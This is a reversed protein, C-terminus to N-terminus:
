ASRHEWMEYRGLPKYGLHQYMGEAVTTSELSTTTCGRTRAERLAHRVLEGAIGRGRAEPVTAVFWLYCDRDHERAILASSTAQGDRALYLHSDSDDMTQFVAAMSWQELVGHARDNVRAIAEWTPAPDLDIETRQALDLSDIEAAFLMPTSDLVHGRRELAHAARPEDPPVWVTWAKVAAAEYEAALAAHARELQAPEDYFVGNFISFWQRVPVVTAQVRDLELLKAGASGRALAAFFARQSRQQRDLLDREVTARPRRM